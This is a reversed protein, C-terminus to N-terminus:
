AAHPLKDRARLRLHERVELVLEDWAGPSEQRYLRANPYWPTRSGSNGWRWDPVHQLLIWVDKGMAGALHAMATDTTIVLDLNQIVGATDLFAGDADYPEDFVRLSIGEPPPSLQEVGDKRQLSYFRTGNVQTLPVLTKLPVSRGKDIKNKSGQWVLGVNLRDREFVPSTKAVRDQPANLYPGPYHPVQAFEPFLYPVSMLPLAYDCNAPVADLKVLQFNPWKLTSLLPLLLAQPAFSVLAHECVPRLYRLFQLTDGLGQESHVFLRKGRWADGRALEKFPHAPKREISDSRTWRWEYETWGEAYRGMSLLALALNWHADSYGPERAIAHRYLEIAPETEGRDKLLVGYNNCPRPRTPDKALVARYWQEAEAERDAAHLAAGYNSQFEVNEPVLALAKELHQVALLPHGKKHEVLALTNWAEAIGQDLSLARAAAEAAEDLRHDERYANALNAWAAAYKPALDLSCRTLDYFRARDGDAKHILALLHMAEPQKPDADLVQTYCQRAVALNGAKHATVGRSLLTKASGVNSAKRRM